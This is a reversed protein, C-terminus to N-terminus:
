NAKMEKDLIQKLQQMPQEWSRPVTQRIVTVNDGYWHDGIWVYYETLPVIVITRKGMAASSHALSTCSTVFIDLQNLAGLADEFTSLQYQLDLIDPYNKVDDAGADRQLSILDWGRGNVVEHLKDLPLSRHLDQDYESNGAFRLGIKINDGNIINKWKIDYTQDVSLYKEVCLEDVTLGMTIPLSMAHVCLADTPITTDDATCIVEARTFIPHLYDRDTLWVPIMGLDKIKNCFRFNIIEDGIGGGGNGKAHILVTKGPRSIGDWLTFKPPQHQVWLDLVAGLSIFDALGNIYDGAWMKHTALNFNIRNVINQPLSQHKLADLLIQKSEPKKNVLFLSFAKELQIEWDSPNIQENLTIYDLAREPYNLCNYVKALNSRAAYLADDSHAITLARETWKVSSPYDKVNYYCQGLLDFEQYSHARKAFVDLLTRAVTLENWKKLLDTIQNLM